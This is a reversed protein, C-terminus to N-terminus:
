NEIPNEHGAQLFSTFSAIVPRPPVDKVEILLM